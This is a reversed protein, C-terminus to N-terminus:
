KQILKNQSCFLFGGQNEVEQFLGWAESAIKDTLHEIYYAGDAPNIVKDFFAEEKLIHQINRAIRKSFQLNTKEKDHPLIALYDCGGIVASMAKTTNRLINYNKDSENQSSIKTESHITTYTDSVNYGILVLEWLKRFARIKAIEFFYNSGIGFTFQMKSAVLSADINKETLMNLYEVGQSLSFGIEQITTFNYELYKSANVTISKYNESTVLAEIEGLNSEHKDWNNAELCDGLFDYSM